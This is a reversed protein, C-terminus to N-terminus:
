KEKHNAEAGTNAKAATAPAGPNETAAVQYETPMAARFFCRSIDAAVPPDM